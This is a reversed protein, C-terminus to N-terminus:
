LQSKPQVDISKFVKLHLQFLCTFLQGGEKESHRFCLVQERYVTQPEEGRRRNQGLDAIRAM